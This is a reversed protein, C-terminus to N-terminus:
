CVHGYRRFVADVDVVCGGFLKHLDEADRADPGRADHTETGVMCFIIQYVAANQRGSDILANLIGDDRM